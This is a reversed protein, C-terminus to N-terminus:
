CTLAGAARSDTQRDRQGAGSRSQPRRSRAPGADLPRAPASPFPAAARISHPFGPRRKVKGLGLRHSGERTLVLPHGLGRQM